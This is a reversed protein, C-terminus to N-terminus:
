SMTRRNTNVNETPDSLIDKCPSCFIRFSAFAFVFCCFSGGYFCVRMEGCRSFSSGKLEKKTAQTIRFELANHISQRSRRLGCGGHARCEGNGLGFIFCFSSFSDDRFSCSPSAILSFRCSSAKPDM